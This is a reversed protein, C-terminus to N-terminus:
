ANVNDNGWWCKNQNAALTPEMHPTTMAIAQATKPKTLTCAYRRQLAGTMRALRDDTTGGLESFSSKGELSPRGDPRVRTHTGHAASSTVLHSIPPVMSSEYGAVPRADGDSSEAAGAVEAAGGAPAPAASGGAYSALVALGAAAIVLLLLAEVARGM